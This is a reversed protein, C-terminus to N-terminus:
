RVEEVQETDTVRTRLETEGRTWGGSFEFHEAELIRRGLAATGAQQLQWFLVKAGAEAATMWVDPELAPYLTAFEPRLRAHRTASDM